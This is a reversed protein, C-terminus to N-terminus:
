ATTSSRDTEVLTVLNPVIKGNLCFLRQTMKSRIDLTRCIQSDVRAIKDYYVPHPLHEDNYAALFHYFLSAGDLRPVVLKRLISDVCVAQGKGLDEEEELKGADLQEVPHEVSSGTRGQGVLLLPFLITVISSYYFSFFPLQVSIAM